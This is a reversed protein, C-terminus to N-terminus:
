RAVALGWALSVLARPLDAPRRVGVHLALLREFLRPRAALARLGQRRMVASRDMLLLLRAMGHAPRIIRRHAAAYHALDGAALATGLAVAQRFALALGEGTVADVSGSADGILAVRGATVAGLRTSVTLAGREPDIPTADGLRAALTPFLRWLDALRPGPVAGILAICIADTGVPTVYAQCGAAWHVEVLDTWPRCRVHCRIGIRRAGSWAPGLGAWLRLRSHTGDAGVIWRAKVSRGGLRLGDSELGEVLVGWATTVGAAEAREALARHLVTRRVGLGYDDPFRAEAVRDEGVFRIGRFLPGHEPGLEVGLERLAALGDPLLGEGCAKDLPPRGRDVVLVSLGRRRAALAAALGAPGGGAVLLDVATPLGM